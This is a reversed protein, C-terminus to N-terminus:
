TLSMGWKKGRYRGTGKLVRGLVHALQEAATEETQMQLQPTTQQTKNM